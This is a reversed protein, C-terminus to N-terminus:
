ALMQKHSTVRYFIQHFGSIIFILFFPRLLLPESMVSIFLIIMFLWKKNEIIRQKFFMYLLILSTPFGTGALLFMVSNSSGKDTVKTTSTIGISSNSSIYFEERIKQFQFVDLGVGTLPNDMAIFVPQTLDFIRKQFSGEKEGQIKDKINVSFVFFLPVLLTTIVALILKNNKIQESLYVIAQILLIALGTTSYSTLIVFSLFLLFLKSKKIVFAELFFLINLFVQLVGPEWFLGQNRCFEFGEINVIGRDTTYFFLNLFTECEHFTTNITSLDDRVFFYFIFNLASHFAILKLVFYLTKLFQNSNRNNKFHFFTLVSLAVSLLYFLYKETAQETIAFIFNIIGICIISILILVSSYIFPKKFKNGFFLISFILVGFFLVSMVNRNFVFLLGGTSMILMFVILNDIMRQKVTYIM